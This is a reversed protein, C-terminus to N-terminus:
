RKYTHNDNAIFTPNKCLLSHRCSNSGFQALDAIEGILCLDLTRAYLKEETDKLILIKKRRKILLSFHQEKVKKIELTHYVTLIHSPM